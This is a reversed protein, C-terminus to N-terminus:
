VPPLLAPAPHDGGGFGPGDDVRGRDVRQCGGAEDDDAGTTTADRHGLVAPVPCPQAADLRDDVLVEGGRDQAALQVRVREDDRGVDRVHHDVESRRGLTGEAPHGDRLHAPVRGGPLEGAAAHAGLDLGGEAEDFTAAGAGDDRRELVDGVGDTAVVGAGDQGGSGYGPLFGIGAGISTRLTGSCLTLSAESSALSMSSPTTSASRKVATVALASPLPPM